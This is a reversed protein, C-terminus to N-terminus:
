ISRGRAWRKLQGAIREQEPGRINSSYVRQRGSSLHFVIGMRTCTVDDIESRQLTQAPFVGRYFRVSAGDTWIVPERRYRFGLWVLLASGGGFSVAMGALGSPAWGQTMRTYGWFAGLSLAMVATVAGLVWVVKHDM